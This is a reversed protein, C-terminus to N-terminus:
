DSKMVPKEASVVNNVATIYILETGIGLNEHRNDVYAANLILGRVYYFM